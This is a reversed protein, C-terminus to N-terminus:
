QFDIREEQAVVLTIGSVVTKSFGKTQVSVQYSGPTLNSATYDGTGSTTVKITVGTALNTVEVPAGPIIAGTSDSVRGLITGTTGAQAWVLQPVTLLFVLMLQLRLSRVM